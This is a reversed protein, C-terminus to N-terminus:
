REEGTGFTAARRPGARVTRGRGWPTRGARSRSPAPRAAGTSPPGARACCYPRAGPSRSAGCGPTASALIAPGQWRVPLAARVTVISTEPVPPLMPPHARWTEDLDVWLQWSEPLGRAFETVPKGPRLLASLHAIVTEGSIDQTPAIVASARGMTLLAQAISTAGKAAGTRCAFLVVVPPTGGVHRPMALIDKVTLEGGAADFISSATGHAVVAVVDANSTIADRLSTAGKREAVNLNAAMGSVRDSLDAWQETSGGLDLARVVDGSTPILNCLIVRSPDIKQSKLVKLNKAHLRMDNPTNTFTRATLRWGPFLEATSEAPPDGIVLIDGFPPASENLLQRLRGKDGM